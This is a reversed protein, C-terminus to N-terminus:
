QLANSLDLQESWGGGDLVWSAHIHRQMYWGGRKFWNGGYIFGTVCEYVHGQDYFLATSGCPWQPPKFSSEFSSLMVEILCTRIWLTLRFSANEAMIGVYKWFTLHSTVERTATINPHSVNQGGLSIKHPSFAPSSFWCKPSGLGWGSMVEDDHIYIAACLFSVLTPLTSLLSIHSPTSFPKTCYLHACFM